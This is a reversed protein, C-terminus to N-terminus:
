ASESTSTRAHLRLLRKAADLGQLIADRQPEVGASLDLTPVLLRIAASKSAETIEMDADLLPGFEARVKSLLRGHGRIELDVHGRRMKHVITRDRPLGPPRFRPWNSRPPKPKPKRMELEPAHEVALAWYAQWFEGTAQDPVPQYGLVGRDIADQLLRVKYAGRPGLNAASAFWDQISEYTVLADFGATPRTASVYRGPAALVTACQDCEGRALYSAARERYREAQRPQPGASVKNEILLRVRRGSAEQYTVEVDSEGTPDSRSREVHLLKLGPMAKLGSREAFWALFAPSALFEEVLLLDIDRECLGPIPAVDSM